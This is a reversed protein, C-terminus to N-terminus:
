KFTVITVGDEGEGYKGLRYSKVNPQRKLMGHIATRLVGTGKGHIVTVASLSALFAEDLYIEAQNVAEEPMLGRLDIEPSINMSKVRSSSQRKQVFAAAKEIPDTEDLSVDSIHVKIKMIGAQIQVEGNTDPPNIVTGNQNMSHIYVRNGKRLNEPPTRQPKEELPAVSAELSSLGERAARRAEEIEARNTSDLQKRMQTIIAESEKRADRVLHMAEERAQHIIKEKQTRLKEELKAADERLKEAERRYVAARDQEILV